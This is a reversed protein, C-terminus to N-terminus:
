QSLGLVICNAIIGLDILLSILFIPITIKTPMAALNSVLCMGMATIILPWFVFNNGALLVFLLTLPTIICGHATIIVALWALRNKEQERCWSFFRHLILAKKATVPLQITNFSHQLTEM